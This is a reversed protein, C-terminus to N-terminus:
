GKFLKMKRYRNESRHEFIVASDTIDLINIPTFVWLHLEDSFGTLSYQDTDDDDWLVLESIPVPINSNLKTFNVDKGFSATLFPNQIDMSIGDIFLSELTVAYRANAEIKVANSGSIESKFPVYV